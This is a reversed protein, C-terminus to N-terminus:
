TALFARSCNKMVYKLMKTKIIEKDFKLMKRNSCYTATLIKCLIELFALIATSLVVRAHAKLIHAKNLSLVVSFVSTETTM